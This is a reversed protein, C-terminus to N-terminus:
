ADYEITFGEAFRPNMEAEEEVVQSVSASQPGRELAARLAALSEAAGIAYVEVRGDNRNRTYGSIGLRGAMRQAFYRFGVGQVTGSVYYRKAKPEDRVAVGGAAPSRAIKDTIKQKM